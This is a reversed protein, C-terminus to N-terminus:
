DGVPIFDFELKCVDFTTVGTVASLQPDSGTGPTASLFTGAPSGIGVATGSTLVIGSDMGVLSTLNNTFKANANGNCVLTANSFAIGNGVLTQALQTATQNTTSIFQANTNTTCVFLALITLVQKIM